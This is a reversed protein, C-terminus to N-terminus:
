EGPASSKLTLVMVPWRTRAPIRWRWQRFLIELQMVARARPTFPVSFQRSHISLGNDRLHSLLRRARCGSLLHSSIITTRGKRLEPEASALLSSWFATVEEPTLGVTRQWPALHIWSRQRRRVVVTLQPRLRREAWALPRLLFPSVMMLVWVLLVSEPSHGPAISRCVCGTLAAWSILVAIVVTQRM